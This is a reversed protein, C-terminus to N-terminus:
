GANLLMLHRDFREELLEEHLASHEKLRDLIAQQFPQGDASTGFTLVSGFTVHLMQRGVREDLYIREVDDKPTGILGDVEAATTSIHYSARDTTFCSHSFAVIQQFLDPDVRCVTRLGELYSTGATKM